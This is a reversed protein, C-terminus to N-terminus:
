LYSQLIEEGRKGERLLGMRKLSDSVKDEVSPKSIIAMVADHVQLLREEDDRLHLLYSFKKISSSEEAEITYEASAFEMSLGSGKYGVEKTLSHGTARNAQRKTFDANKQYTADLITELAAFDKKVRDLVDVKEDSPLDSPVLSSASFHYLTTYFGKGDSHEFHFSRLEMSEEPLPRNLNIEISFFISLANNRM